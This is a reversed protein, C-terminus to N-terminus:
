KLSEVAEDLTISGTGVADLVENLKPHGLLRSDWMSLMRERARLRGRLHSGPCSEIEELLKDVGSGDHASVLHVPPQSGHSLEIASRVSDAAQQSNPLDSKNIAIIDALEMIGAKEAQVVDGRDPGDVLLVRDAFAVIRIESQGSGVTEIVIRSWGCAALCGIMPSLCSALGGPHNRTALSRVYVSDGSDIDGMRLRDALLAGGSNPSSPDVALVAVREGRDVWSSILRGILSSKGVGPPGTVGLTWPEQAGVEFSGGDEIFTLAKSLDRRNGSLASKLLDSDNLGMAM